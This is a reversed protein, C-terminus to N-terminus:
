LISTVVELFAFDIPYTAISSKSNVYPSSDQVISGGSASGVSVVVVVVVVVVMGVM